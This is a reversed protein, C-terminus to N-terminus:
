VHHPGLFLFNKKGPIIQAPPPAETSTVVEESMTEAAKTESETVTKPEAETEAKSEAELEAKSEAEAYLAEAENEVKPEGESESESPPPLPDSPSDETVKFFLFFIQIYTYKRDKINDPIILEFSYTVFDCLM